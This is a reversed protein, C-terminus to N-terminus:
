QQVAELASVEIEPLNLMYERRAEFVDMFMVDFISHAEGECVWVGGGNGVRDPMKSDAPVPPTAMLVLLAVSYFIKTM